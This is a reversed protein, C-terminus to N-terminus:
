VSFICFEVAVLMSCLLLCTLHKEASVTIKRDRNCGYLAHWYSTCKVLYFAFIWHRKVASVGRSKTNRINLRIWWFLMRYLPCIKGRVRSAMISWTNVTAYDSVGASFHRYASSLIGVASKKLFYKTEFIQPPSLRKLSWLSNANLRPPWYPVLQHPFDLESISFGKIRM